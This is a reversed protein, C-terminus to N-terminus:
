SKKKPSVVYSRGGPVVSRTISSLEGLAGVAKFLERKTAFTRAPAIRGDGGVVSLYWILSV